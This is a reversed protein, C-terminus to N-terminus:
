SLTWEAAESQVLSDEIGVILDAWTPDETFSALSGCALILPQKGLREAIHMACGAQELEAFPDVEAPRLVRHGWLCPMVDAKLEDAFSGFGLVKMVRWILYRMLPLYITQRSGGLTRVGPLISTVLFATVMNPVLRREGLARRLSAVDFKVVFGPQAESLLAGGQLRLPLIRGSDMGWFLDTTRRIWGAWPGANLIDLEALLRSAFAGDGVYCRALWSDRDALHSAVLDAVDIDDLQLFNFGSPFWRDWIALNGAKLAEAGSSFEETPLYGKLRAASRNAPAEGQRSSFAFRYPGGPACVNYPVMRSRTLGFINVPEHELNLWGPGKKAKEVFKVTSVAYSIHWQRAHEKLGMLGFLHTYFADPEIALLCHPGTQMIPADSLQQRASLAQQPDFGAKLAAHEICAQLLSMAKTRDGGKVDHQSVDYVFRAYETLPRTWFPAIKPMLYSLASVAGAKSCPNLGQPTLKNM